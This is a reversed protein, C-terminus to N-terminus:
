RQGAGVLKFVEDPQLRGQAPFAEALRERVMTAVEKARSVIEEPFITSEAAALNQEATGLVAETMSVPRAGTKRQEALKADIFREAEEVECKLKSYRETDTPRTGDTQAPDTQLEIDADEFEHMDVQKFAKKYGRIEDALKQQLVDLSEPDAAAVSAVQYLLSEIRTLSRKLAELSSTESQNRIAEESTQDSENPRSKSAQFLNMEEVISTRAISIKEAFEPNYLYEATEATSDKDTTINVSRSMNTPLAFPRLVYTSSGTQEIM